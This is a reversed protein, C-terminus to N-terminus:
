LNTKPQLIVCTDNPSEEKIAFKGDNIEILVDRLAKPIVFRNPKDNLFHMFTVIGWYPRDKPFSYCKTIQNPIVDITWIDLSNPHDLLLQDKQDLFTTANMKQIIEMLNKSYVQIFNVSLGFGDNINEATTIRITKTTATPPTPEGCGVLLLLLPIINM